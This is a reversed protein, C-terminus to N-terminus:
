REGRRRRLLARLKEADRKGLEPLVDRELEDVLEHDFLMVLANEREWAALPQHKERLYLLLVPPPFGRGTECSLWNSVTSLDKGLDIAITKRGVVTAAQRIQEHYDDALAAWRQQVQQLERAESARRLEAERDRSLLQLTEASM